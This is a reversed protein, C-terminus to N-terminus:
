PLEDAGIGIEDDDNLMDVWEVKLNGSHHQEQREVYGRGKGQTKLYFIIATPNGENILKHLASEANDLGVRRENELATEVTSYRSKYNYITDPHCGLRAAVTAVIGFSSGNASFDGEGRIADIIQQSTFKRKGM